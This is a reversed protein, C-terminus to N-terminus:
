RNKNFAKLPPNVGMVIDGLGAIASLASQLVKAQCPWLLFAMDTEDSDKKAEPQRMEKISVGANGFKEAIQGLAGSQDKVRLRVYYSFGKAEDQKKGNKFVIHISNDNETRHYLPHEAPVLAPGIWAEVDGGSLAAYAVPLITFGFEKAFFADRKDLTCKTVNVQESKIKVGFACEAIDTLTEPNRNNGNLVAHIERISGNLSRTELLSYIPIMDQATTLSGVHLEKTM